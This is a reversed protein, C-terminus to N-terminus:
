NAFFLPFSFWHNDYSSINSILIPQFKFLDYVIFLWTEVWESLSSHYFNRSRSITGIDSPMWISSEKTLFEQVMSWRETQCPQIDWIISQSCLSNSTLSASSLPFAGKCMAAAVLLLSIYLRSNCFPAFSFKLFLNWWVGNCKNLLFWIVTSLSSRDEGIFDRNM